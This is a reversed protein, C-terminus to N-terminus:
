NPSAVPDGGSLEQIASEPYVWDRKAIGIDRFDGIEVVTGNLKKNVLLVFMHSINPLERYSTYDVLTAEDFNV